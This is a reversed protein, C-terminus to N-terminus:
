FLLSECPIILGNFESSRKKTELKGIEGGAALYIETAENVEERSIKVFRKPPVRRPTKWNNM